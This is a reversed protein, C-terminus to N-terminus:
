NRSELSRLHKTKQILKLTGILECISTDACLEVSGVPSKFRGLVGVLRAKESTEEVVNVYAAAQTLHKTYYKLKLKLKRKKCEDYINCINM